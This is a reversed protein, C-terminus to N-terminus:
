PKVPKLKKITLVNRKSMHSNQGNKTGVEIESVIGQNPLGNHRLRNRAHNAGHTSEAPDIKTM